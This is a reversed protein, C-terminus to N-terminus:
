CQGHLHLGKFVEPVRGCSLLRQRLLGYLLSPWAVFWPLSHCWYHFLAM